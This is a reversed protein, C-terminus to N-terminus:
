CRNYRLGPGRVRNTEALMLQIREIAQIENNVSAVKPAAQPWPAAGLAVVAFPRGPYRVAASIGSMPRM